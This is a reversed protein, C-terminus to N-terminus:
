PSNGIKIERSAKLTLLSSNKEVLFGFIGNHRPDQQVVQLSHYQMCVFVFVLEDM